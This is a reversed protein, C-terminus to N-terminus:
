KNLDIKWVLGTRIFFGFYNVSINSIGSAKYWLESYLSLDESFDYKGNLNFMPNTEQNILFYDINTISIGVNWKYDVPKLNYRIFYMLNWNEHIKENSESNSNSQATSSLSYTRFNTGLKFAFHKRQVKALFGWNFEHVWSSFPNYLIFGEMEFPFEKISFDRGAILTMGTFVNDAASKIDLQVGGTFHLKQYQYSVFSSNKFYVGNSVNNEGIDFHTALNIQATLSVSFVLGLIISFLYKLKHKSM